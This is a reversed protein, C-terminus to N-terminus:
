PATLVVSGHINMYLNKHPCTEMNGYESCIGMERPYTTLLATAPDYPLEINLVEHFEGVTKQLPQVMKYEGGAIYSPELKEM